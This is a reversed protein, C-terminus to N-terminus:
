LSCRELWKRSERSRAYEGEISRLLKRTSSLWTGGRLEPRTAVRRANNRGSHRLPAYVCGRASSSPARTDRRCERFLQTKSRRASRIRPSLYRLSLSASCTTVIVASTRAIELRRSANRPSSAPFGSHGLTSVRGERTEPWSTVGCSTANVGYRPRMSAGVESDKYKLM